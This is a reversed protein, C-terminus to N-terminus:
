GRNRAEPGRHGITALFQGPTIIRTERFQGLVLLDKDVTVLYHAEGLVACALFAEDFPDRVAGAVDAHGIVIQGLARIAQLYPEIPNPIGALRHHLWARRLVDEYEAYISPSYLLTFHGEIWRALVRAPAGHPSILGSVLVSTDIIARM